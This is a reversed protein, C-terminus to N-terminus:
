QMVATFIMGEFFLERCEALSNDHPTLFIEILIFPVSEMKKSALEDM